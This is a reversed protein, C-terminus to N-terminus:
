DEAALGDILPQIHAAYNRWRELFETHIGDRVQAASATYVARSSSATDACADQWDLGCHAVIRRAQDKPAQVVDEYHVDLIADGFLSRWHAMLTQYAKYYRVLDDLDYSFHQGATFMQRYNGLCTDVPNRRCHVIKAHPFVARIVGLYLFNSPMKDTVHPSDADLANVTNLYSTAIAHLTKQTWKRAASPYSRDDRGGHVSVSDSLFSLEDGAYVNSHGSLIQEVLTTGSRPMGVIFIPRQSDLGKATLRQLWDADCVKAIEAMLQEDNAVDYSLTERVLRNARELHVFAQDYDKDQDLLTALAFHIKAQDENQGNLRELSASMAEADRDADLQRLEALMKWAGGYDPNLSLASRFQAAAEAKRGLARLTVGYLYFIEAREPALECARHQHEAAEVARNIKNLAGALNLHAEVNAPAHAVYDRFHKIANTFDNERLAIIGLINHAAGADPRLRVINHALKRAQNLKGLSVACIAMHILFEPNTTHRPYLKRYIAFAATSDGGNQLMAARDFDNGDRVPM